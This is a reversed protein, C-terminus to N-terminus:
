CGAVFDNLFAVFDQSNIAGDDNYDAWHYGAVVLNLFAVFDQSNVDCDQNIDPPCLGTNTFVLTKGVQSADVDAGVFAYSESAAIFKGFQRYIGYNSPWVEALPSWENGDFRSRYVLGDGMARASVWLTEGGTAVFAAFDGNPNPGFPADIAADETFANGDRRFAYVRGIREGNGDQQGSAGAVATDGSLSVSCGFYANQSLSAPSLLDEEQWAMGDYRYVSVAGVGRGDVATSPGGILAVNDEATISLGFSGGVVNDDHPLLEDVEVWAAGDYQFVYVSGQSNGHRTNPAGILITRGTAAVCYGFQNSRAGDSALLKIENTFTDDLYFGPTGGDDRRYVYVSGAGEAVDDDWACGVVAYEDTIAVSTGAVDGDTGDSPMLSAVPMWDDGFARVFVFAAGSRYANGNYWYASVILFDGNVDIAHGFEDQGHPDIAELVDLECQGWNAPTTVLWVLASLVSVRLGVM